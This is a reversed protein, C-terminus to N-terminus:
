VVIFTCLQVSYITNIRCTLFDLVFAFNDSFLQFLSDIIDERFDVSISNDNRVM